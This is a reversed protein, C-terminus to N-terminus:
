TAARALPAPGFDEPPVVAGLGVARVRELVMQARAPKEFCPMFEGFTLEHKGAHLRHDESYVTLM